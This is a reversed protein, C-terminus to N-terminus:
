LTKGRIKYKKGEGILESSFEKEISIIKIKNGDTLEKLDIDIVSEVYKKATEVIIVNKGKKLNRTRVYKEANSVVCNNISDKLKELSKIDLYNGVLEKYLLELSDHIINGLTSSAITEEVKEKKLGLIYNEFFKIKDLSYLCLMSASIGNSFITELKKQVAKTKNYVIENKYKVPTRAVLINANVNHIGEVEIQTIFRSIEGNNMSDAETNYLMWINQARQILRYFHYAFVADKEKFTQLNNEKKIEFTIFSNTNNGVPLIGENM